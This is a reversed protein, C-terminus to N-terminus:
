EGQGPKLAAKFLLPVVVRSGKPFEKAVFRKVGRPSKLYDPLEGWKSEPLSVFATHSVIESIDAVVDKRLRNAVETLDAIVKRKLERSLTDLEASAFSLPLRGEKLATLEARLDRSTEYQRVLFINATTGMVAILVLAAVRFDMLRDFFSRSGRIHLPLGELDSSSETGHLENLQRVTEALECFEPVSRHDVLFQEAEASPPGHKALLDSYSAILEEVTMKGKLEMIHFVGEDLTQALNPTKEPSEAM